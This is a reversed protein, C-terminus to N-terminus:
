VAAQTMRAMALAGAVMDALEALDATSQGGIRDAHTGVRGPHPRFAYWARDDREHSVNGIYGFTWGEGTVEAIMQVLRECRPATTTRTTTATAM